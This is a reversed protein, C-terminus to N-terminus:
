FVLLCIAFVALILSFFADVVSSHRVYLRRLPYWQLLGSWLMWGTLSAMQLSIVMTPTYWPFTGGYLSLPKAMLGMIFLTCKPNLINCLFGSRILCLYSERREPATELSDPLGKWHRPFIKWALYLLWCAAGWLVYRSWSQEMAWTGVTCVLLTQIFFGSTIGLAVATGARFGQSLSTRVVYIVDPGPSLQSVILLGCVGAIGAIAETM